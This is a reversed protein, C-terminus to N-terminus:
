ISKQRGYGHKKAMFITFEALTSFVFPKDKDGGVEVKDALGLYNKAFLEM